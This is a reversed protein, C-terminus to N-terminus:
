NGVVVILQAAQFSKYDFTKETTVQEGGWGWQKMPSNLGLGARLSPSLM